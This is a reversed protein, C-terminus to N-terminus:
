CYFFPIKMKKCVDFFDKENFTILYNIKLNVDQLMFRVVMDVLSLKRKGVSSLRMTEIIAKDRYPTDNIYTINLTKLSKRFQDVWIRNKVFRTSLVEYLIPWPLLIHFKQIKDMILVSKPHREREERNYLAIWFGTDTLVYKSIKGNM